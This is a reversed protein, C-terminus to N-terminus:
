IYTFRKLIPYNCTSLVFMVLNVLFKSLCNWGMLCTVHQWSVLFDLFGLFGNAGETAKKQGKCHLDKM